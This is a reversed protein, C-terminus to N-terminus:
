KIRICGCVIGLGMQNEKMVLAMMSLLKGFYWFDEKAAALALKMPINASSRQRCTRPILFRLKRFGEGIVATMLREYYLRRIMLLDMVFM